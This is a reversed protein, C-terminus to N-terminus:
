SGAGADLAAEAEAILEAEVAHFKDLATSIHAFSRAPDKARIAAELDRIGARLKRRLGGNM